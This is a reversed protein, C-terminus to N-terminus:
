LSVEQVIKKVANDVEEAKGVDCVYWSLGRRGNAGQKKGSSPRKSEKGGDVVEWEEGRGTDEAWREMMEVDPEKVDLVAVKASKALLMEVLCRGLGSGGGTIVVVEGGTKEEGANGDEVAEGSGGAKWTVKRPNGHVLKHNWWALWHALCLVWLWVFSWKVLLPHGKHRHTAYTSLIFVFVIWPHFISNALVYVVTDLTVSPRKTRSSTSSTPIYSPTVRPLAPEPVPEDFIPTYVPPQKTKTM